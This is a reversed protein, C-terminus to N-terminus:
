KEPANAVEFLKAAAQECICSELANLIDEKPAGSSLRAAAVAAQQHSSKVAVILYDKPKMQGKKEAERMAAIALSEHKTTVARRAEESPWVTVDVVKEAIGSGLKVHAMLEKHKDNVFKKRNQSPELNDMEAAKLKKEMELRPMTRVLLPKGDEGKYQEAAESASDVCANLFSARAGAEDGDHGNLDYNPVLVVTGAAGLGGDANKATKVLVPKFTPM